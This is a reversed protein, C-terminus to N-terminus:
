QPNIIILKENRETKLSPYSIKINESLVKAFNPIIDYDDYGMLNTMQIYADKRDV